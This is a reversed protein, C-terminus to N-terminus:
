TLLDNAARSREERAPWFILSLGINSLLMAEIGLCLFLPSWLSGPGFTSFYCSEKICSKLDHRFFGGKGGRRPLLFVKASVHSSFSQFFRSAMCVVVACLLGVGEIMVAM